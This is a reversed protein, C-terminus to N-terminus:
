KKRFNYPKRNHCAVCSGGSRVCTESPKKCEKGSRTDTYYPEYKLQLPWKIKGFPVADRIHKPHTSAHIEHCARCTRGKIDRNVHLFHLNRTGDRFNTLTLTSKDRLLTPEHCGFCLEYNAKDFTETYFEEPYYKLLIRYNDSGHPSHCGSCNKEKIPGHHDPNEDLLKKLNMLPKEQYDAVENNHCKMCLDMPEALLHNDFPAAHPEHCNVCSRKSDVPGHKYKVANIDVPLEIGEEAHCETCLLQPEKKLFKQNIDSVHPNHCGTCDDEAPAHTVNEENKMKREMQDHCLYCLDPVPENLFFQNDSEHPNHCILCQGLSAPSHAYPGEFPDHCNFCLQPAEDSLDDAGPKDSGHCSDCEAAAFPPHQFAKPEKAGLSLTVSCLFAFCVVVLFLVAKSKKM